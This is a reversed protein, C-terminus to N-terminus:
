IGRRSTKGSCKWKARSLCLPTNREAGSCDYGESKMDGFSRACYKDGKDTGPAIRYGKAGYRVTNKRGTEPNTVVKTYKKGDDTDRRAPNIVQSGYFVVGSDRRGFGQARRRRPQGTRPDIPVPERQPAASQQPLQAQVGGPLRRQDPRRYGPEYKRRAAETRLRLERMTTKAAMGTAEGAAAMTNGIQAIRRVEERATQAIRSEATRVGATTNERMRQTKSKRAPSPALLGRPTLGPLRPPGSEPPSSPKTAQGSGRTLAYATLGGATLAAGIAAAPPWSGGKHCKANNPIGSAGCKKDLRPASDGRALRASLEAAERNVRDWYSQELKVPDFSKDIQGNKGVRAILADGERNPKFGYRQYVRYKKIQKTNNPDYAEATLITGEPMQKTIKNFATAAHAVAKLKKSRSLSENADSSASNGFNFLVTFVRAGKPAINTRRLYQLGETVEGAAIHGVKDRVNFVASYITGNNNPSVTRHVTIGKTRNIIRTKNWLLRANLSEVKARGQISKSAEYTRNVVSNGCNLNRSIWGEGCPKGKGGSFMMLFDSRVSTPTLAYSAVDRRMLPARDEVLNRVLSQVQRDSSYDRLSHGRVTTINRLNKTPGNKTFPDNPSGLTVQTIDSRVMGDLLGYNNTGFNINIVGKTQIKTRSVIALAEEAIAGGYSHGVVVIQKNPHARRFAIIQAALDVAAENRGRAQNKLHMGMIEKPNADSSDRPDLNAKRTDVMITKEDKKNREPSLSKQWAAQIGEGRQISESGSAGPVCFVIRKQRSKLTTDVASSRRLADKAAAAVGGRYRARLAVYAATSLGAAVLVGTLVSNSQSNKVKPSTIPAPETKKTCKSNDPIGSRGCRRDYRLLAATLAM